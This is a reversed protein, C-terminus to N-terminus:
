TSREALWGSLAPWMRRVANPGAILSVHGGKLVLATKDESGVKELLPASAETSVIHDHEATIHMVPVRISALDVPKRGVVLSGDLLRNDWMLDRTTQRFYEGALPLTEEGWRDFARYSKVFEDNWM